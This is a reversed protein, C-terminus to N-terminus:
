RWQPKFASQLWKVLVTRYLVTMTLIHLRTSLVYTIYCNTISVLRVPESKGDYRKIVASAAVKDARVKVDTILMVMEVAVEQCDRHVLDNTGVHLIM